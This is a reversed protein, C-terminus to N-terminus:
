PPRRHTPGYRLLKSLLWGSAVGLASLTVALASSLLFTKSIGENLTSRPMALSANAYNLTLLTAASIM